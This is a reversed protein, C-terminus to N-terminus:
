QRRPVGPERRGRPRRGCAGVGRGSSVRDQAQEGLRRVTGPRVSGRPTDAVSPLHSSVPVDVGADKDELPM